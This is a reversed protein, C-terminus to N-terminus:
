VVQGQFSVPCLALTYTQLETTEQDGM